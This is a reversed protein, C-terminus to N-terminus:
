RRHPAPPIRHWLRRRRRSGRCRDPFRHPSTATFRNRRFWAFLPLAPQQPIIRIRRRIIPGEAKRKGPQVRRRSLATCAALAGLVISGPEPISVPPGVHINDLTTEANSAVLFEASTVSNFGSALTIGTGTSSVPVTQTAVVLGNVLGNVVYSQNSRSFFSILQFPSSDAATLTIRGSTGRRSIGPTEEEGVTVRFNGSASHLVYGDELLLNPVNATITRNNFDLITVAGRAGHTLMAALTVILVPKMRRPATM